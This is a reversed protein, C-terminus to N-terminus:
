ESGGEGRRFYRRLLRPVDPPSLTRPPPIYIPVLPMDLHKRMSLLNKLEMRIVPIHSAM